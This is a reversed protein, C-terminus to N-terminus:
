NACQIVASGMSWLSVLTFFLLFVSKEQFVIFICTLYSIEGMDSESGPVDESVM